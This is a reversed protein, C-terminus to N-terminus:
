VYKSKTQVCLHRGLPSDAERQVTSRSAATLLPPVSSALVEGSGRQPVLLHGMARGCRSVLLRKLATKVM